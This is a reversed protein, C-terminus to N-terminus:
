ALMKYLVGSAIGAATLYLLGDARRELLEERLLQPLVRDLVSGACNGFSSQLAPDDLGRELTLQSVMHQIMEGTGEMRTVRDAILSLDASHEVYEQISHGNRYCAGDVRSDAQYGVGMYDAGNLLALRYRNEHGPLAFDHITYGDYGLQELRHKAYLYFEIKAEPGCPDIRGSRCDAYLPTGPLLLLPRLTLHEPEYALVADLSRAWSRMTQNPIGYLLEFDLDRMPFVRVATDVM